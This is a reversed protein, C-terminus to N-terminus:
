EEESTDEDQYDEKNKKKAKKIPFGLVPANIKNIIEQQKRAVEVASELASSYGIKNIIEQQKRAVEV